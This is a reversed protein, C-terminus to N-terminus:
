QSSAKNSNADLLGLFKFSSELDLNSSLSARFPSIADPNNFAISLSLFGLNLAEQFVAFSFFSILLAKASRLTRKFDHESLVPTALLNIADALSKSAKADPSRFM